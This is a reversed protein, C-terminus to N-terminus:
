TAHREELHSRDLACDTTSAPLGIESGDRSADCHLGGDGSYLSQTDHCVSGAAQRDSITSFLIGGERFWQSITYFPYRTHLGYHRHARSLSPWWWAIPYGKYGLGTCLSRINRDLAAESSAFLIAKRAKSPILSRLVFRANPSAQDVWTDWHRIDDRLKLETATKTLPFELPLVHKQLLMPEGQDPVVIRSEGWDVTSGTKEWKMPIGYVVQLLSELFQTLFPLHENPIDILVIYVNDRYRSLMITPLDFFKTDSADTLAGTKIEALIPPIPDFDAFYQRLM